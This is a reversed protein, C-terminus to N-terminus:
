EDTMQAMLSRVMEEVREKKFVGRQYLHSLAELANVTESFNRDYEKSM